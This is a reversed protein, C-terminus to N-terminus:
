TELTHSSNPTLRGLVTFELDESTSSSRNPSDNYENSVTFTMGHKNHDISRKNEAGWNQLMEYTPHHNREIPGTQKRFIIVVGKDEEVFQHVKLQRPGNLNRIHM